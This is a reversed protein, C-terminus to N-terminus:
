RRRSFRDVFVIAAEIAIGGALLGGAVVAAAINVYLLFRALLVVCCELAEVM